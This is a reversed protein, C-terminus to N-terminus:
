QQINTSNNEYLLYPKNIVIKIVSFKCCIMTNTSFRKFCICVMYVSWCWIFLNIGYLCILVMYISKYWIFMYIGHLCISCWIFMHFVMYVYSVGYLCIFCWIFMHFVMYISSYWTFLHIGHLCISCWIFMHFVMYVYPVGYLCISCWIFLNIGHLYIFMMCVSPEYLAIVIIRHISLINNSDVVNIQVL